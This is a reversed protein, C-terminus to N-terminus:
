QHHNQRAQEEQRDIFDQMERDAERQANTTM